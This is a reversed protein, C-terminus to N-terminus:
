GHGHECAFTKQHRPGRALDGEREHLLERAVVLHPADCAEAIGVCAVLDFGRSAGRADDVEAVGVPGIEGLAEIVHQVERDELRELGVVVVRHPDVGFAGRQQHVAERVALRHEHNRRGRHVVSM